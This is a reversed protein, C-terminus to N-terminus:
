KRDQLGNVWKARALKAEAADEVHIASGGLREGPLLVQSLHTFADRVPKYDHPAQPDRRRALYDKVEATYANKLALLLVQEEHNIAISGSNAMVFNHNLESLAPHAHGFRAFNREAYRTLAWFAHGALSTSLPSRDLATLGKQLEETTQNLIFAFHPHSM